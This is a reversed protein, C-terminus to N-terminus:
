RLCKVVESLAKDWGDGERSLTVHDEYMVMHDGGNRYRWACARPTLTYCKTGVAGCIHVATTNPLVCVDLASILAITHDMDFGIESSRSLTSEWHHVKKGTRMFHNSFKAQAGETYQLSIFDCGELALIPELFSLKFSRVHGHTKKHGAEYGIGVKTKEGLDNLRHKYHDVLEPKPKLYPARKKVGFWRFLSGIGIRYDFGKPDITTESEPTKRTPHIDLTPFTRRMVSELRDHCEYVVNGKFTVASVLEPLASAFMIEDGLGQEGYVIIRKGRLDQGNYYPLERWRNSRDATQIGFDYNIFGEEYNGLELELLARNWWSKLNDPMLATSKVIHDYGAEPDGNNISLCALNSHYEACLVPDEKEDVMSLAKDWCERAKNDIHEGKYASGLNNWIQPQHGDSPMSNLIHTFLNIALGNWGQQLFITAISFLIQPQDHFQNLLDNYNALIASLKDTDGENTADTHQKLLESMLDQLQPM